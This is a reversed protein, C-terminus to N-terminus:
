YADGLPHPPLKRAVARRKLEEFDIKGRRYERADALAASYDGSGAPIKPEPGPDTTPSAPPTEPPTEPADAPPTEPADAPPTERADPSPSPPPDSAPSRCAALVLVVSVLASRLMAAIRGCVGAGHVDSSAGGPESG